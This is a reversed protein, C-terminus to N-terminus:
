PAAMGLHNSIASGTILFTRFGSPCWFGMLTEFTLAMKSLPHIKGIPLAEAPSPRRRSGACCAQKQVKQVKKWWGDAMVWWHISETFRDLVANFVSGFSDFVTSVTLFLLFFFRWFRDIVTLLTWFCYVFFTLCKKKFTLSPWFFTLFLWFRYKLFDFGTFFFTFFHVTQLKQKWLM